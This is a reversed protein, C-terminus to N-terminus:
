PKRPCRLKSATHHRAPQRNSPQVFTPLIFFSCFSFPALISHGPRTIALRNGSLGDAAREGTETTTTEGCLVVVSAVHGFPFLAALGSCTPVARQPSCPARAVRAALLSHSQTATPTNVLRISSAPWDSEGLVEIRFNEDLRSAQEGLLFIQIAVKPRKNGSAQVQFRKV